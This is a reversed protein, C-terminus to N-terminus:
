GREELLKIVKEQNSIVKELADIRKDKERCKECEGNEHGTGGVVQVEEFEKGTLLWHASIHLNDVIEYLLTYTPYSKEGEISAIIDRTANIKAAFETQSLKLDKRLEKIRQYINEM